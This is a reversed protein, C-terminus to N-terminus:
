PLGIARVDEDTLVVRAAAVNEELHAASTTGPIPLVAPSRRLLWALAVQAPTVGKAAAVAGLPGDAKSLPSAPDFPGAGLPGYPLFAIGERECYDVVADSQRDVASYRNQVSAVPVVRRAAEIQEVTVNSLGVHRVLGERRLDALAGVSEEIPVAPDVRHLQYLPVVDLRLRQLSKRCAAKLYEPRGDAHVAAPGTKVAGGKTAIVLGRPYPHLCEAILSENDGPGYADATDVFNVGLDLARHLLARAGAPDRYPGWNGPQGTLRMAGYGLRFLVLDDALTLSTPPLNTTM